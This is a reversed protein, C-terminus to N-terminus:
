CYVFCLKCCQVANAAFLACVACCWRKASCRMLADTCAGWQVLQVSTSQRWSAVGVPHMWPWRWCPFWWLPIAGLQILMMYYMTKWYWYIMTILCRFPRELSQNRSYCSKRGFCKLRMIYLAYILIQICFALPGWNCQLRWVGVLVKPGWTCQPGAATPRMSGPAFFLINWNAEKVKNGQM